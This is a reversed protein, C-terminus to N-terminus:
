VKTGGFADFYQFYYAFYGVVYNKKDFFYFFFYELLRDSLVKKRQKPMIKGM